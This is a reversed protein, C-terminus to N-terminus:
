FSLKLGLQMSRPGGSGIGPNGAAVDATACGCGFTKPLSPDNGVGWGNVSGYPNAILPHNLLNFFEVRFQASFREKFTFTKFVSFDVNKFGSDRFINRGTNGFAGAAPPTMVSSGKVFCGAQALTGGAAKDAAVATCKAWMANADSGSLLTPIGSVGSVYACGGEPHTPDYPGFSGLATGGTTPDGICWPISQSGSRYDAPNGFFDWRDATDGSGSFNFAVPSSESINWPQASQVSVISNLKWGELMQAFGKIGPIDYSGTVTLRHRMDFDGSGYEKEPHFSDQPLYGARNLSGNDLGHGYTYGATFSLGHSTRKTLTAQLSHYNSRGDNSIQNIFGLGNFQAKYFRNGAADKQNLDRFGTLRSGHTGVYGIELSLNSGFAHQVGLNWSTVYPTKLNPDVALLNCRSRSSCNSVPNTPFVPGGWTLSSGPLKTTTTIITGGYTGPSAPCTGGPAVFSICAGTPDAGITTGGTNQLGNQALFDAAIFTSYIVSFGGRVVTTGKGSVDYAFGARPSFNKRDPHWITPGVGPQGQQVLGTASNPDFNGWLNNVEKIPQTYTYRLGLNLTLKSSARFDDQVYGAISNWVMTRDAPGVFLRGSDINGTYFNVLAPICTAGPCATDVFDIRGRVNDHQTSDVLIHAYEVGFKLTHKGVLFSVNDQADSYWNDWSNPRNHWSGLTQFSGINIIPLGCPSTVGTNIAYGAGGTLGSGDACKNADDTVFPTRVRDYGFRFDNVLRSSAAFVWDAGFTYTRTRFTDLFASALLPHDQGDGTYNGVLFMGNLSHKSNIHYDVKAVGNDSVNVNPFPTLYGTSTSPNSPYLGGTCATAAPTAGITCGTLALSVPSVSAAGGSLVQANIADVMSNKVGGGAITEPVGSSGLEQGLLSRLGEYNAFFFLKDKKIPGGVAGGFQKLQLPEKSCFVPLQSHCNLAASDVPNFLSRAEWAASRYFGYAAGHLTNTGSRVGVNVVAGPKWGYEAKPNEALNFEQIADIPLITAGDTFPSPMNAIPRADYFNVNLIGDVMWGSEDPRVNNSSQTWPGGGPQVTVGPRLALLNQYNRGNLPMDNIDANNLTGGLTANTTEVLPISETITITDSVAGPALTLDVRVEKGVELVVNQRDLTKFGKAEVRVRYTGPNLPPASYEGSDNSVLIKSVGRETDTVTVTAGAVVGGSQDTVTGMIRGSSGQSFLPLCLLLVGMVGGLVQLAKRLSNM